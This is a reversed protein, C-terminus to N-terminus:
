FALSQGTEMEEDSSSEEVVRRRKSRQGNSLGGEDEGDSGSDAAAKPVDYELSLENNNAGGNGEEGEEADGSEESSESEAGNGENEETENTPDGEEEEEEEGVFDKPDLIKFDRSTSRKAERLLNLKAAKGLQILYKEYDEIQFILEPICKNERKIKSAMAKNNGSEQQDKQLQEMFKYLPATLQRCTIEVMKQYKLSPLVQKSGRPAILLKAMRALDKYLKTSLRLFHEAQPDKLNMLVFNSLVKIIAEVRCYLTEELVLGPGLSKDPELSVGKQTASSYTKLKTIIWDMDVINSEVIQLISSAIAACTTKNIVHFTESLDPDSKGLRLVKLLESAMEQSVTLDNPPLSLSVVLYVWSRALKPNRLDISKCIHLIWAGVLNRREAPLQNGIIMLIDCVIEVESFFSSKLLESLLPMMSNKIFMEKSRTAQNEVGEALECEIGRDYHLIDSAGHEVESASVLAEILEGIESSCLSVTILKKLCILALHIHEKRDDVNRGRSEKKKHSQPVSTLLQILKVLPPGLLKIEGYILMKLPDERGVFPLSTLQCLCANLVFNILKSHQDSAKCSSVQSHNESPASSTSSDFQLLQPAMALLWYISSTALHPVREQPLTSGSSNRKDAPDSATSRVTGRRTGNVQRSNCTFKELMDHMAVFEFLENQLEVKKVNTAKELENIIVNLVVESIGLLVFACCRIKGEEVITSDSDDTKGLLGELNATRLFKRIKSLATSFSEGSLIRGAENEQTLSFGFSAWSDPPHGTKDQPQLLLIWSICSLLSDLPEEIHFKGSDSKICSTIDLKIDADEKYYRFFHPLLFDFVSGAALPDVLVVKVLGHYLVERVKAQQYLCRQFLGSLERFLSAGTTCPIEAQQSCSAQSSSEQFSLPGDRKRQKEALILSIICNTAAVRVSDERRFMAKRLVLITYDQLDHSFKTLPLLVAVLHSSIKAHTFTFYDLLEKLHAVHDLMQFPYSKVLHELLRTIPLAQEPKLSLIRFKCQEIIEKRAMDHVEFSSKLMQSGLEEVGLLDDSNDLRRKSVEEVGELLGFGFQVISPIIHERGSNSENVARIIAREMVQAIQLYAEKLHDSLWKCEKAFKYDKYASLLATKLVGISSECFRKVRAVSLLVAVTFHNFARSDAKVLGLVEQGLSPDQKVAFNVHLLVTGEVQKVISSGKKGQVKDGFYTVIGEIVEKKSFGKSALVLLQYVLGPLDQLDVDRMGNFVKGLFDRRKEKQMFSFERIIEVMKVLLVKRWESKILSDVVSNVYGYANEFENSTRILELCKPLLILLQTDESDTIKPIYSTILDIIPPLSSVPVADLHTSFLQITSLSLRDHPIKHATFLSAYSLLLSSLLSSLPSHLSSLSILASAYESVASSPNPSATARSQLYSLLTQHSAEALLFPPLPLPTTSQSSSYPHKQALQIIDADTLPPPPHASTTAM